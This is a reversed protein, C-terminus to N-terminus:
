PGRQEPMALPTAAAIQGLAVEIARELQPDRGQAYDQPRYEVPITPEAGHNELGWGVDPFWTPYEPQTTLTGDVLQIYANYGIVGGWTRTGIVPGLGLLRFAHSFIDGDSGTSENVIAVMPGRPSEVPYPTPPGWRPFDYGLRRRALKELLLWSVYGGSNWRVDIILAEHDYEALYARHFEAFGTSSMNPIHIYGVRGATATRVHSRNDNVWDRYRGAFEDDLAKVTIHRTEGSAASRILMTVEQMSQNVLLHQPGRTASLRQGNIAVVEDGRQLQLGPGLLPSTTEPDWPDGRVFREIRYAGTADNLRWDVGLYGQRYVPHPRYEGGMEYTHSTGLEGQMEHILDSLEGRTAIREVLPQYRARVALWDIGNMDATWFQERQLRWAEGFMQRWELAPQLGVRVRSLDLWGTERGARNEPAIKEGLRLVRLRDGARYLIMRPDTAQGVSGVGEVLSEARAKEYNYSLLVGRSSSSAYESASILGEVPKVLFLAGDITGIVQQYRGEPIPFAVIRERIGAFDIRIGEEEAKAEAEKVQSAKSATAQAPEAQAPSVPDAHQEQHPAPTPSATDTPPAQDASAATTPVADAPPDQDGSSKEDALDETALDPIVPRFPSPVTDRLTILYPRVAKPFSMEVQLMDRVPDFSRESLFHLYRGRPDFAPRYDITVPDTVQYTEGTAVRAIKIAMQHPAIASGYAVWNSDPAWALGGTLASVGGQGFEARDLVKVTEAALDVLLIENRHNAILVLDGTPAAALEVVHGIDLATLLRDPEAGDVRCVVLRPETGDDAVAVIRRGDALWDLHRYRISDPEGLQSVAGDFNPMSFIKGRAVIAITHGYPHLAAEELNRSASVFRRQRQARTGALDVDLRRANGAGPDLLYLDGGAHFVARRGDSKLDRAYFEGLASHRRLDEGQATVSYVAGVGEHDAIFYLRDAIWCPTTLNQIEPVIRTFAGDGARDIWLKGTGGGRYRKWFAPEGTHRGLVVMGDPGYAITSALGYPLPLAEGGTPAIAMLARWREMPQRAATSFIILAGDPSWAEAIPGGEQYTLRTAAGGTAPIVFIEAPGEEHGTFAIWAGDPSFLPLRAPALHATLREARGGISQVRWLDDEATFVLTDEYITPYRLYVQPADHSPM